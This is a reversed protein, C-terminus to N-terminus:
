ENPNKKVEPGGFRGGSGGWVGRTRSPYPVVLILEKTLTVNLSKIYVEDEAASKTLTVNLSKGPDVDLM